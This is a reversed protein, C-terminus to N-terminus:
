VHFDLCTAHLKGHDIGRHVNIKIVDYEQHRKVRVRKRKVYTNSYYIYIYYPLVRFVFDKVCNVTAQCM